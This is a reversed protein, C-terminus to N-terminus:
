RPQFCLLVTLRRLNEAASKVHLLAFIVFCLCSLFVQSAASGDREERLSFRVFVHICIKFITIICVCVSTIDLRSM